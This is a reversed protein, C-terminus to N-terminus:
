ASVARYLHDRMMVGRARRFRRMFSDADVGDLDFGALIPLNARLPAGDIRGFDEEFTVSWTPMTGEWSVNYLCSLAREAGFLGPIRDLLRGVVRDLHRRVAHSDLVDVDAERGPVTGYGIRVVVWEDGLGAGEAVSCLERVELARIRGGTDSADMSKGVNNEMSMFGDGANRWASRGAPLETRVAFVAVDRYNPIDPREFADGPAYRRCKLFKPGDSGTDVAGKLHGGSAAVNIAMQMGNSEACRVAHAVLDLWEDSGWKVLAKPTVVHDDDDWYGRSDSLLFGGFGMKSIDVVDAAVIARDVHTNKWLYYTWPKASQPPDLFAAYLSCLLIGIM